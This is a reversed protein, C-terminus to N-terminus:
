HVSPLVARQPPGNRNVVCGRWFMEDVKGGWSPYTLTRGKSPDLSTVYKWYSRDIITLNIAIDVSISPFSNGNDHYCNLLNKLHASSAAVARVLDKHDRLFVTALYVIYAEAVSVGQAFSGRLECEVHYFQTLHMADSDQGRFSTNVHFIEPIIDNIRLFYELCFQM